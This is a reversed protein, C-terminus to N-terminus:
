LATKRTEGHCADSCPLITKSCGELGEEVSINGSQELEEIQSKNMSFTESAIIRIEEEGHIPNVRWQNKAWAWAKAIMSRPMNRVLTDQGDVGGQMFKNIM